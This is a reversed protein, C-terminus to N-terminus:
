KPFFLPCGRRADARTAFVPPARGYFLRLFNVVFIGRPAMRVALGGDAPRQRREFPGVLLKSSCELFKAVFLFDDLFHHQDGFVDVVFQLVAQARKGLRFHLAFGARLQM